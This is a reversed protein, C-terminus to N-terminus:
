SFNSEALAGREKVEHWKRASSHKLLSGFIRPLVEIWTLRGNLSCMLYTSLNGRRADFDGFIRELGMHFAHVDYTSIIKEM